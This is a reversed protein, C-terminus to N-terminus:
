WWLGAPGYSSEIFPLFCVFLPFGWSIAIYFRILIFFKMMECVMVDVYKEFQDSKKLFYANWFM